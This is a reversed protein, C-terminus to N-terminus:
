EVWYGRIERDWDNQNFDPFADRSAYDSKGESRAIGGAAFRRSIFAANGLRRGRIVQRDGDQM